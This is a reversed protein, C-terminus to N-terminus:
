KKAPEKASTEAVPAPTEAATEEKPAEIAPTPVPASLGALMEEMEALPDNQRPEGLITAGYSFGAANGNRVAWIDVAFKVEGTEGAAEAAMLPAEIMEHIGGPLYLLGSNFLKGNTEVEPQTVLARFTGKLASHFEGTRKDEKVKVGNAVGYFRALPVRDGIKPAAAAAKANCGIDKVTLKPLISTDAPAPASGADTAAAMAVLASASALSFISRNM